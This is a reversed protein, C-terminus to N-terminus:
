HLAVIGLKISIHEINEPVSWTSLRCSVVEETQLSRRTRTAAVVEYKLLTGPKLRPRSLPLEAQLEENEEIGGLM